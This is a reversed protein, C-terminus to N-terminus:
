RWLGIVLRHAWNNPDGAVLKITLILSMVVLLPKVLGAGKSLVFQSGLRGGIIQGVAMVLAVAWQIQGGWLFALVSAVNSTVNLLKTHATARTLSFGLLEVLAVTYFSGAGPGFFGDYFGILPAASLGFAFFSIRQRSDEDGIAPKVLFYVAITVLLIPLIGRLFAPDIHQVLLTGALAGIFVAVIMPRVRGIDLCGARYFHYAASGTGFCSQMKNTALAQAPSLGAWLLAPVCLLGGGGAIADVCGAVVAIIFLAAIVGLSM